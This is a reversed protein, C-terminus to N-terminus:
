VQNFIFSAEKTDAYKSVSIDNIQNKIVFMATKTSSFLHFWTAAKCTMILELTM